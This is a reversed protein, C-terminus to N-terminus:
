NVSHLGPVRRQRSKARVHFQGAEVKHGDTQKEMTPVCPSFACNEDPWLVGLRVDGHTPTRVFAREVGIDDAIQSYARKKQKPAENYSPRYKEGPVRCRLDLHKLAHVCRQNPPWTDRRPQKPARDQEKDAHESIRESGYASEGHRM